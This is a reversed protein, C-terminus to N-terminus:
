VVVVCVQDPTLDPSPPPNTHSASSLARAATAAAPRASVLTRRAVTATILLLARPAPMVHHRKWLLLLLSSPSRAASPLYPRQRHTTPLPTPHSHQHLTHKPLILPPSASFSAVVSLMKGSRLSVVGLFACLCVVSVCLSM